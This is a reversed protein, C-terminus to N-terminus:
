TKRARRRISGMSTRRSSPLNQAGSSPSKSCCPLRRIAETRAASRRVVDASTMGNASWDSSVPLRRPLPWILPITSRSCDPSLMGCHQTESIAYHYSQCCAEAGDFDGGGTACGVLIDAEDLGAALISLDILADHGVQSALIHQGRQQGLQLAQEPTIIGNNALFGLAIVLLYWPQPDHRPNYREKASSM